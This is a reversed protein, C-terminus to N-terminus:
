AKIYKARLEQGLQWMPDTDQLEERGDFAYIFFWVQRESVYADLLHSIRGPLGFSTGILCTLPCCHKGDHDFSRDIITGGNAIYKDCAEILMTRLKDIQNSTM